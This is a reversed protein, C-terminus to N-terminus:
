SSRLAVAQARLPVVLDESAHRGSRRGRCERMRLWLHDHIRVVSANETLVHPLFMVLGKDFM